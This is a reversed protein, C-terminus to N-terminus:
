ANQKKAATKSATNGSTVHSKGLVQGVRKAQAASLQINLNESRAVGSAVGPSFIPKQSKAMKEGM